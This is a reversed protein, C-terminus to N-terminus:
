VDWSQPEIQVLPFVTCDMLVLIIKPSHLVGLKTMVVIDPLYSQTCLCFNTFANSLLGDIRNKLQTSHRWAKENDADRM